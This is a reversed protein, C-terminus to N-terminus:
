LRYGILSVTMTLTRQDNRCIGLDRNTASIRPEESNSPAKTKGASSRTVKPIVKTPMSIQVASDSERAVYRAARQWATSAIPQPLPVAVAAYASFSAIPVFKFLELKLTVFQEYENDFCFVCSRGEVTVSLPFSAYEM